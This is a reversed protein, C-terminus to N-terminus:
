QFVGTQWPMKFRTNTRAQAAPRPAVRPARAVVAKQPKRLVVLDPREPTSNSAQGPNTQEVAPLRRGANEAALRAPSGGAFGPDQFGPVILATEQPVNWKGKSADLFASAHASVPLSASQTQVMPVVYVTNSIETISGFAVVGSIAFVPLGLGFRAVIRM